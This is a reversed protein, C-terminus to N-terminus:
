SVGLAYSKEIGLYKLLDYLDQRNSYAQDGVPTKGYARTDYRVVRYRQAFVALQDDWMRHDAVGAHILVLPHGEGAVEYYLPGGEAEIFGTKSEVIMTM